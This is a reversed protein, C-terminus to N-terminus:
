ISISYHGRRNLHIPILSSARTTACLSLLRLWMYRVKLVTRIKFRVGGPIFYGALTTGKPPCVRPISPSIPPYIRMSEYIVARLYPLKELQTLHLDDIDKWASLESYLKDILHPNKALLYSIYTLAM